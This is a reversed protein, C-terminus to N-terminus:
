RSAPPAGNGVTPLLSGRSTVVPEASLQVRITHRKGDSRKRLNIRLVKNPSATAIIWAVNGPQETLYGNISHIVDGAQLGAKEAATGPDIRPVKIGRVGDPDVVPEEDIGLGPARLTRPISRSPDASDADSSLGGAATSYPAFFSDPYPFRGTFPGFDGNYPEGSGMDARDSGRIVPRNPALPGVDQSPQPYDFAFCGIGNYTFPLIRGCRQLPPPQHPYGPGGYNPYGGFAGVGLAHGGYGYGPHFKLGFGDYGPYLGYGGYGLTGLGVQGHDAQDEFVADDATALSGFFVWLGAALALLMLGLKRGSQIPSIM